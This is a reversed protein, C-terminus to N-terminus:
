NSLPILTYGEKRLLQILGKNGVLHGAGVAVFISEKNMITKLQKIWKKNRDNLLLDEHDNMGFETKNFLGEIRDIKQSKYVDLMTDFDKKYSQISDISQLLEKAQEAYPISDFVSSQFEITELGQIQKKDSKALLVLQEEVGSTTECPLMKPYLLAVLFYPKMSEFFQLPLQLSDKFYNQLRVYQSDTYFDKLKKGDNMNVLKLGNQMIDPDDMDLEMYIDNVNTVAKKLQDSFHIDDKCMLHFTGFLYSPQQLGNGSVQWLLSNDDKNIIPGKTDQALCPNVVLLIILASFFIRM